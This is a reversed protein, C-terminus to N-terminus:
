TGPPVHVVITGAAKDHLGQRQRDRFLGAYVLCLALVSLVSFVSWVGRLGGLTLLMVPLAPVAARIAASTFGPPTEDHDAQTVRVSVIRAGATQGWHGIAVTFYAFALLAAVVGRVFGHLGFGFGLVTVAGAVVIAQDVAAGAVRRGNGTLREDVNSEAGWFDVFGEDVRSEAGWFDVFGEDVQSEAGWFDVPREDVNWEAGSFDVLGEDVQSEAGLLDVLGEDVQSEHGWFDQEEQKLAAVDIM